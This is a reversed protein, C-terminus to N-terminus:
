PLPCIRTDAEDLIGDITIPASAHPADYTRIPVQPPMNRTKPACAAMMLLLAPFLFRKM